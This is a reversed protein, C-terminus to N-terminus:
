FQVVRNSHAETKVYILYLARRWQFLPFFFAAIIKRSNAWKGAQPILPPAHQCMVISMIIIRVLRKRFGVSPRHTHAQGPGQAQSHRHTCRNRFNANSTRSGSTNRPKLQNNPNKAHKNKNSTSQLLPTHQTRNQTTEM